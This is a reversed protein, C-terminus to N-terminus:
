LSLFRCEHASKPPTHYRPCGQDTKWSNSTLLVLFGCRLSRRPLVCSGCFPVEFTLINFGGATQLNFLQPNLSSCHCFHAYFWALHINPLMKLPAITEMM